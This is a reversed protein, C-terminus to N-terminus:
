GKKDFIVGVMDDLKAALNLIEDPPIERVVEGTEENVVKVQVRGSSQHVSFQLGVQHVIDLNQQLDAILERTEPGNVNPEHPVQANPTSTQSPGDGAPAAAGRSQHPQTVLPSTSQVQM